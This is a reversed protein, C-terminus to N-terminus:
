FLGAVNAGIAVVAFVALAVVPGWIAWHTPEDQEHYNLWLDDSCADPRPMYVVTGADLDAQSTLPPFPDESRQDGTHHRPDAAYTMLAIDESTAQDIPRKM